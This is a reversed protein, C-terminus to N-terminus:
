LYLFAKKSVIFALRDQLIILKTKTGHIELESIARYKEKFLFVAVSGMLIFVMVEVSM